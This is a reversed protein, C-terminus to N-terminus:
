NKKISNICGCKKGDEKRKGTCKIQIEAETEIAITKGCQCCHIKNESM